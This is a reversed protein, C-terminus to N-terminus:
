WEREVMAAPVPQLKRAIMAVYKLKEGHVSLRHCYRRYAQIQIIEQDGLARILRSFGTEDLGALFTEKINFAMWGPTAILNLATSFAKPPIDGFGLASVSSLLNPQHAKLARAESDRLDTLDAVVYDDYLCPRDREAAMAAAPIIDVGVLRRVGIARLQEGVMGNGAGLDIGSLQTSRENWDRVVEDLL